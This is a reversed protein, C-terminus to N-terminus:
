SSPVTDFEANCKDCYHPKKNEAIKEAALEPTPSGMFTALWVIMQRISRISGGCFPCKGLSKPMDMSGLVALITDNGEM